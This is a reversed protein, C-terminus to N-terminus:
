VEMLRYYLDYFICHMLLSSIVEFLENGWPLQLRGDASTLVLLALLLRVKLVLAVDQIWCKDPRGLREFSYQASLSM